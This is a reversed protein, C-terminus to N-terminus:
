FLNEDEFRYKFSDVLPDFYKDLFLDRNNRNHGLNEDTSKYKFYKKLFLICKMM